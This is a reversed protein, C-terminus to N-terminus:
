VVVVVMDNVMTFRSTHKIDASETETINYNTLWRQTKKHSIINNGLVRIITCDMIVTM